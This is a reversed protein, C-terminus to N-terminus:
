SFNRLDIQLLNIQGKTKVHFAENIEEDSLNTTSFKFVKELIEIKKNLNIKDFNIFYNSNKFNYRIEFYAKTIKKVRFLQSPDLDFTKWAKLIFFDIKELLSLDNIQSFFFIWGKTKGEDICGTVRLNLQFLFFDFTKDKAYRYKSFCQIISTYFNNISSKRVTILNDQFSYGLYDFENKKIEGMKSKSFNDKIPYIELKLDYFDKEIKNKIFNLNGKNILILIDDVFRFYRISPNSLFQCDIQNLFIASLINSIALGQPIGGIIENRQPQLAQKILNLSNKSKIKSELIEFLIDHSVTPYFNKIDIKIFFDYEAISKQLEHILEQPMRNILEDQYISQLYLHISKLVVRDRITPIYLERPLKQRGKNLLKLKYRTFKFSKDKLKRHIIDIQKDINKNFVTHSIHDTGIAFSYYIYSYYIEKLREKTQFESLSKSEHM